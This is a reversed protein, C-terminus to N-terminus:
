DAVRNNLRPLGAALIRAVESAPILVKRGFRVVTFHGAVRHNDLGRRSMRVLNAAEQMTFFEKTGLDRAATASM